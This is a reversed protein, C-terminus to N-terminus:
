NFIVEFERIGSGRIVKCLGFRKKMRFGTANNKWRINVEDVEWKALPVMAQEIANALSDAVIFARRTKTKTTIM